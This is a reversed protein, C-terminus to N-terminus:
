PTQRAEVDAAVISTVTFSPTSGGVTYEIRYFRKRAVNAIGFWYLGTGTITAMLKGVTVKNSSFNADDAGVLIGDLTQGSGSAATVNLAVKPSRDAALNVPGLNDIYNASNGTATLVQAVSMELAHELLM